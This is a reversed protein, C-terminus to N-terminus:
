MPHLSDSSNHQIVQKRNTTLLPFLLIYVQLYVSSSTCKFIYVQLHISSFDMLNLATTLTFCLSHVLPLISVLCPTFHLSSILCTVM